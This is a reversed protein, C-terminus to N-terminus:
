SILRATIAPTSIGFYTASLIKEDKTQFSKTADFANISSNEEHTDMRRLIKAAAHRASKATKKYGM